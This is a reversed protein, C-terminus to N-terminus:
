ATRIAVCMCWKYTLIRLGIEIIPRLPRGLLRNIQCHKKQKILYGQTSRIDAPDEVPVKESQVEEGKLYEGLAVANSLAVYDKQVGTLYSEDFGFTVKKLILIEGRKFQFDQISYTQSIENSRDGLLVNFAGKDVDRQGLVLVKQKKGKGASKTPRPSPKFGSKRPPNMPSKSKRGSNKRDSKFRNNKKSSKKRGSKHKSKRRLSRARSKSKSNKRSSDRFNDTQTNFPTNHNKSSAGNQKNFRDTIRFDKPDGNNSGSYSGQFEDSVEMPALQRSMEM